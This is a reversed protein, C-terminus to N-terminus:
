KTSTSQYAKKFEMAADYYEGIALYKEAKKMHRDTGCAIVAMAVVVVAVIHYITSKKKMKIYYRLFVEKIANVQTRVRGKLSPIPTPKKNM